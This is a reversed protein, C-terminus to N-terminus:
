DEFRHKGSLAITARDASELLARVHASGSQTQLTTRSGVLSIAFRIEGHWDWVPAAMSIYGSVESRRVTVFRRRRLEQQVQVRLSDADGGQEEEIIAATAALPLCAVFLRGAATSTLPILGTRLEFIGRPEGEQKFLSVPGDGTWASVAASRQTADRLTTVERRVLEFGDIQLMASMGIALAAPGLKYFGPKGDTSALGTRVLSVLYNNAASPSLGARAAIEKLALAQQSSQLATLLKFAIEM